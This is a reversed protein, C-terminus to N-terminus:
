LQNHRRKLDKTYRVIDDKVDLREQEAMDLYDEWERLAERSNGEQKGIYNLAKEPTAGCEMVRKLDEPTIKAGELRKLLEDRLKEERDEGGVPAM